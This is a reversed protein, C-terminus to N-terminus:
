KVGKETCEFCKGHVELKFHELNVNYENALLKFDEFLKEDLITDELHVFTGCYDCKVHTLKPTITEFSIDKGNFTNAFLMHNNLLLKINNYVSMVNVQGLKEQVGDIVDQITFHRNTTIIDLISLRVDTIKIKNAKFFNIYSEYIQKQREM